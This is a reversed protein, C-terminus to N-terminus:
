MWNMSRTLRIGENSTIFCNGEIKAYGPITNFAYCKMFKIEIIM